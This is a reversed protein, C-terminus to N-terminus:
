KVADAPTGDAPQDEPPNALFEAAREDAEQRGAEIVAAYEEATVERFGEPVAADGLPGTGGVLASTNDPSLFYRKSM